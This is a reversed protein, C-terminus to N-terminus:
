ADNNKRDHLNERREIKNLAAWLAKERDTSIGLRNCFLHAASQLEYAGVPYSAIRQAIADIQTAISQPIYDSLTMEHTSSCERALLSAAKEVGRNLEGDTAFDIVTTKYQPFLNLWGCLLPLHLEAKIGKASDASTLYAVATSELSFLTSFLPFLHPGGYREIELSHPKEEISLIWGSDIMEHLADNIASAISTPRPYRLRLGLDGSDTPYRVFYGHPLMESAFITRIIRERFGERPVITLNTFDSIAPLLERNLHPELVPIKEGTARESEADPTHSTVGFTLCIESFIPQDNHDRVLPDLEAGFSSYVWKDSRHLQSRITELFGPATRKMLIKRDADGMRIWEPIGQHDAWKNFTAVDEAGRYRHAPRSVIVNGYRVGPLYDVYDSIAGWSWNINPTFGTAAVAIQTLWEPYAGIGAMSTPRFHVPQGDQDCVHVQTGDSWLYLASLTLEQPHSIASNVNLTRPYPPQCERVSNFAKEPSVWDINVAYDDHLLRNELLDFRASAVGGPLSSIADAINYTASAHTGHVSAIIDLSDFQSYTRHHIPLSSEVEKLDVWGDRAKVGLAYVASIYDSKKQAALNKAQPSGTITKWDLGFIPHIVHTLPIRAAGYKELLLQAILEALHSDNYEFAGHRLGHNLFDALEDAMTESVMGTAARYTDVDDNTSNIQHSLTQDLNKVHLQKTVLRRHSRYTYYDVSKDTLLIEKAILQNIVTRVNSINVDPYFSLIKQELDDCALRDHTWTQISTTLKNMGVSSFVPIDKGRPATIYCRKGMVVASPNWRLFTADEADGADGVVSQAVTVTVTPSLTITRTNEETSNYLSLEGITSVLRSPTARGASRSILGAFFRKTKRVIKPRQEQGQEISRARSVMEPHFTTLEAWLLPSKQSLCLLESISTSKALEDLVNIDNVAARIVPATVLANVSANPMSSTSPM